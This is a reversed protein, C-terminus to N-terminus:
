ELAAPHKPILKKISKRATKLMKEMTVLGALNTKIKVRATIKARAPSANQFPGYCYMFLIKWFCNRTLVTVKNALMNKARQNESTFEDYMM